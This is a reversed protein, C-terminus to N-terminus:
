FTQRTTQNNHVTYPASDNSHFVQRVPDAVAADVTPAAHHQRRCLEAAAIRGTM